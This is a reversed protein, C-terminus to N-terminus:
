FPIDDDAENRDPMHQSAAVAQEDVKKVVVEYPYYPPNKGLKVQTYFKKEKNIIPMGNEDKDRQNQWFEIIEELNGNREFKIFEQKGSRVYWPTKINEYKAM